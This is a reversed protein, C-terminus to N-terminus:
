QHPSRSQEIFELVFAEEDARNQVQGSIKAYRLKKLCLGISEGHPVGLQILDDGTLLPKMFRWRKLYRTLPELWQKANEQRLIYAILAMSEYPDFAKCLQLASADLDLGDLLKADVLRYYDKVVEITEKTLELRSMLKQKLVEDKRIPCFLYCLYVHWLARENCTDPDLPDCYPSEIQFFENLNHQV